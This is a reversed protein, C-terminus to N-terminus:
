GALFPALFGFPSKAHAISAIFVFVALAAVFALRRSLLTKGRKLAISGLGIYVVVLLVKATLWANAFPYQQIIVTLTIAAALLISDVTYSLYRVPASMPWRQGLLLLGLGRLFFLGGSAAVAALHVHLVASHVPDM